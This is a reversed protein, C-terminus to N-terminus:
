ASLPASVPAAAPAPKQASTMNPAWSADPTADIGPPLDPTADVAPDLNAAETLFLQIQLGVHM